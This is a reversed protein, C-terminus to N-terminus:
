PSAPFNYRWIERGKGEDFAFLVMFDDFGHLAGPVDWKADGAKFAYRTGEPPGMVSGRKAVM